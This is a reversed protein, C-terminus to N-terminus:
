GSLPNTQCMTYTQLTIIKPVPPRSSSEAASLLPVGTNREANTESLEPLEGCIAAGPLDSIHQNHYDINVQCRIQHIVHIHVKLCFELSELKLLDLLKKDTTFIGGNSCGDKNQRQILHQYLQPGILHPSVFHKTEKRGIHQWRQLTILISVFRPLTKPFTEQVLFRGNPTYGAALHLPLKLPVTCGTILSM